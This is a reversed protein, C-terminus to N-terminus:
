RITEKQDLTTRVTRVVRDATLDYHTSSTNRTARGRRRVPRAHGAAAGAVPAPEALAEAVAGGLGGCRWHEEVTVVLSAPRAAAVLAETDFPSLTHLNLVTAEVGHAALVDAADLCALVPYPGCARWCWTAARAAADAGPRHGPLRRSPLPPTPKRGLRVYLPGELGVSQEVFAETAAADAPVVVTM